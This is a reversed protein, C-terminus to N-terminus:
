VFTEWCQRKIKRTETKVTAVLRKYEIKDKEFRTTLYRLYAKKNEIL